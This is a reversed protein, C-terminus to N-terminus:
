INHFYNDPINSKLVLLYKIKEYITEYKKDSHFSALYKTGDYNEVYEEAKVFIIGLPKKSTYLKAHLIM